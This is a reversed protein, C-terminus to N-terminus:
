PKDGHHTDGSSPLGSTTRKPDLKKELDVVRGQLRKTTKKRLRRENWAWLGCGGGFLYAFWQNAKLDALASLIFEAKTNQGALLATARYAFYFCLVVGAVRATSVAIVTVSESIVTLRATRYQLEAKTAM